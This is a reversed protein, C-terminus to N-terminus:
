LGNNNFFRLVFKSKIAKEALDAESKMLITKQSNRSSDWSNILKEGTMTSDYVNTSCIVDIYDRLLFRYKQCITLTAEKLLKQFHFYHYLQETKYQRDLNSDKLVSKSSNLIFVCLDNLDKNKANLGQDFNYILQYVAKNQIDIKDVYIGHISQMMNEQFLKTKPTPPMQNKIDVTENMKFNSTANLFGKAIQINITSITAIKNVQDRIMEICSIYETYQIKFEHRFFQLIQDELREDKGTRHKLNWKDPIALYIPDKLIDGANKDTSQDIHHIITSNLKEVIAEVRPSKISTFENLYELLQQIEKAPANVLETFTTIMNHLGHEDIYKQVSRFFVAFQDNEKALAEVFVNRTATTQFYSPYVHSLRQLHDYLADELDEIPNVDDLLKQLFTNHIIRLTKVNGFVNSFLSPHCLINTDEVFMEFKVSLHNLIKFIKTLRTEMLILKHPPESILSSLPPSPAMGSKQRQSTKRYLGPQRKVPSPMLFKLNLQSQNEKNFEILSNDFKTLPLLPLKKSLKETFKIRESRLDAAKPQKYKEIEEGKNGRSTFWLSQAYPNANTSKANKQTTKQFPSPPTIYPKYVDEHIENSEPTMPSNIVDDSKRVELSNTYISSSTEFSRKRHINM